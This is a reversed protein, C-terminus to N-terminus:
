GFNLLCGEPHRNFFQKLEEKVISDTKIDEKPHVLKHDKKDRKHTYSTSNSYYYDVAQTYSTIDIAPYDTVRFIEPVTKDYIYFGNGRSYYYGLIPSYGHSTKPLLDNFLPAARSMTAEKCLEKEIIRVTRAVLPIENIFEELYDENFPLNDRILIEDLTLGRKLSDKWNLREKLDKKYEKLLKDKCEKYTFQKPSKTYAWTHCGM